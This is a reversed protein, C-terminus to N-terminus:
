HLFVEEGFCVKIRSFLDFPNVPQRNRLENTIYLRLREHGRLEKAHTPMGQM